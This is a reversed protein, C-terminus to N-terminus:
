YLLSPDGLRECNKLSVLATFGHFVLNERKIDREQEPHRHQEKIWRARFPTFRLPM